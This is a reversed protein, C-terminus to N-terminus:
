VREWVRSETNWRLGVASQRPDLLRSGSRLAESPSFVDGKDSQARDSSTDGQSGGPSDAAKDKSNALASKALQQLMQDRYQSRPAERKSPSAEGYYAIQPQGVPVAVVQWAGLVAQPASSGQANLM